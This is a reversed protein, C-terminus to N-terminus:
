FEEHLHAFQTPFMARLTAQLELSPEGWGRMSFDQPDLTGYVLATVAQITLTCLADAQAAPSVLLCGDQTEFRWCGENWPCVPDSVQVTFGGAACHMGGLRAIDLVRGMPAFDLTTKVRLDTLWLEPREFAPLQIEVQAVQDIHRAIWELLLNRGRSNRTYFRSAELTFQHPADSDKLKYLMVGELEDEVYALAAWVPNRLANDPNGYDFVGMGHIKPQLELLFERYLNYVESLLKFVVRGGLEKKLLPTTGIPSFRALKTQPLSAYGLREYFSERFPYLASLVKGSEREATLLATMVQRVYGKRRAAPHTAVGWVASAPYLAGRLNEHMATSGAGVAPVGDEFLAFYTVGNRERARKEWEEREVFPPSARFAYMGLPFMADRMEQDVLSRVETQPM